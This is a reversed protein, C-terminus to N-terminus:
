SRARGSSRSRISTNASFLSARRRANRPWCRRVLDSVKNYEEMNRLVDAAPHHRRDAHQRSLVFDDGFQVINDAVAQTINTAAIQLTGGLNLRITLAGSTGANVADIVQQLGKSATVTRL